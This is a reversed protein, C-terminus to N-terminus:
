TTGVIAARLREQKQFAAHHAKAAHARPRFTRVVSPWFAENNVGLAEWALIAAGRSSAEPADVCSLSLELVDALIQGWAVTGLLAGGTCTVRRVSPMVTQLAKMIAAFRYAVAELSAQLIDLSSTELRLGSVTGRLRPNWGVSREGTLFPLITLGHGAPEAALLARDIEKPDLGISLTRGMWEFLNGGDGLVGGVVERSRDLRYSWLGAPVHSEGVPRVARLAGTTGIMLAACDPATCGCGVNSCAGDGLAPFWAADHLGPWRQSFPSLLGQAPPDTGELPSLHGENLGLAALLEPDWTSTTRNFLGSSSAMSLSCSRWGTFRRICYEGITCWWDVEKFLEPQKERFWLIKSPFYAPHLPCGTRQLIQDPDLIEGLRAAQDASRTDAWTIVPLRASGQRDVGILGHLFTCFAVAVVRTSAAVDALRQLSEDICTEVLEALINADAEACGGPSFVFRYPRRGEAGEIAKAQDDFFRARVSSSGIDISLVVSRMTSVPLTMM